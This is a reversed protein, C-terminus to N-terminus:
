HQLTDWDRSVVESLDTRALHSEGNALYGVKLTACDDVIERTASSTATAIAPSAAAHPSVVVVRSVRQQLKRRLRQRNPKDFRILQLGVRKM